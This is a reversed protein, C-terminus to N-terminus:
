AGHGEIQQYAQQCQEVVAPSIEANSFCIQEHTNLLVQYSQNQALQQTLQQYEGDTRSPQHPAIGSDNLQQLMAMYLSRCAERYNGQRYFEQSRRLWASVKLGTATAMAGGPASNGLLSPFFRGYQKWLRLLRWSVGILILGLMVWFALRPLWSPLLLNKLWSPLSLEPLSNNTQSLQLELWEGVQQQFQQMQWGLNTDEFESTM